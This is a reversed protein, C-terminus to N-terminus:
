VPMVNETLKAWPDYGLHINAYLHCMTWSKNSSRKDEHPGFRVKAFAVSEYMKKWGWVAIQVRSEPYLGTM